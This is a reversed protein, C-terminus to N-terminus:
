GAALRRAAEKAGRTALEDGTRILYRAVDHVVAINGPRGVICYWREGSRRRM